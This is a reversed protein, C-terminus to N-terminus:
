INDNELQILCNMSNKNQSKLPSIRKLSKAKKKGQARLLSAPANRPHGGNSPTALLSTRALPLCEGGKFGKLPPKSLSLWWPNNQNNYSHLCIHFSCVDVFNQ